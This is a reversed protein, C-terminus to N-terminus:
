EKSLRIVRNNERLLVFDRNIEIVEKGRYIDGVALPQNNIIAIAKDKGMVIGRLVLVSPDPPHAPPKTSSATAPPRRGASAPPLGANLFPNRLPKATPATETSPASGFRAAAASADLLGGRQPKTSYGLFYGRITCGIRPPSGSTTQMEVEQIALKSARRQLLELYKVSTQFESTFTATFPVAEGHGDTLTEGEGVSLAMFKPSDQDPATGLLEYYGADHRGGTRRAEEWAQRRASTMMATLDSALRRQEELGGAIADRQLAITSMPALVLLKVLVALALLGFLYVYRLYVPNEPDIRRFM